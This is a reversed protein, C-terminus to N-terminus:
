PQAQHSVSNHSATSCRQYPTGALMNSHGELCLQHSNSRDLLQRNTAVSNKHQNVKGLPRTLQQVPQGLHNHTHVITRSLQLCTDVSHCLTILVGAHRQLTLLHISAQKAIDRSYRALQAGALCSRCTRMLTNEALGSLCEALRLAQLVGALGGTALMGGRLQYDCTDSCKM